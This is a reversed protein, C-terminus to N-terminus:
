PYVCMSMQLVSHRVSPRWGVEGTSTLSREVYHALNFVSATKKLMGKPNFDIGLPLRRYQPSTPGRLEELFNFINMGQLFFPTSCEDRPTLTPGKTRVCTSFVPRKGTRSRLLSAKWLQGYAFFYACDRWSLGLSSKCVNCDVIKRSRNKDLFNLSIKRFRFLCM